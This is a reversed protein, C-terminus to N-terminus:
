NIQAKRRIIRHMSCPQSWGVTIDDVLPRDTVAFNICVGTVLTWNTSTRDDSIFANTGDFWKHLTNKSWQVSVASSNRDRACWHSWDCFFWQVKKKTSKKKRQRKIQQRAAFLYYIMQSARFPFAIPCYQVFACLTDPLAHLRREFASVPRTTREKIQM